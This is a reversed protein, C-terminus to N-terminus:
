DRRHDINAKEPYNYHLTKGYQPRPPEVDVRNNGKKGDTGAVQLLYLDEDEQNEFWYRGNRPIFIGEMAGYDGILGDPGYFRVRGKLVMWFGEFHPHYHLNNDEGKPLIQVTGRIVDGGCLRYHARRGKPIGDPRKFSFSEIGEEVKRHFAEKKAAGRLPLTSETTQTESM